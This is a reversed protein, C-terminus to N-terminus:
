HHWTFKSRSKGAITEAMDKAQKLQLKESLQGDPLIVRFM